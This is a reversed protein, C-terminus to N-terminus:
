HFFLQLISIVCFGIFTALLQLTQNKEKAKEEALIQIRTHRMSFASNVELFTVYMFTGCAMSELVAIIPDKVGFHATQLPTIAM